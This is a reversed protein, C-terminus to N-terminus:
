WFSGSTPQDNSPKVYLKNPTIFDTNICIRTGESQQAEPMHSLWSPFCYLINKEPKLKVINGACQFSIEGGNEPINLYFTTCLSTGNMMATPNSHLHWGNYSIKETQLYLTVYPNWEFKWEEADEHHFYGDKIKTTDKWCMFLESLTKSYLPTIFERFEEDGWGINYGDGAAAQQEINDYYYNIMKDEFNKKIIDHYPFNVGIVLPYHKNYLFLNEAHANSCYNLYNTKKQIDTQNGLFVGEPLLKDNFKTYM